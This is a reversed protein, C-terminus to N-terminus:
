KLAEGMKERIEVRAGCNHCRVVPAGYRTRSKWRHGCRKCEIDPVAELHQEIKRRISPDRLRPAQPLLSVIESSCGSEKIEKNHLNIYRRLVDVNVGMEHFTSEAQNLDIPEGAILSAYYVVVAAMLNPKSHIKPAYKMGSM